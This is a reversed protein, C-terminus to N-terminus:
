DLEDEIYLIRNCTECTVIYDYMKILNIVQPPVFMNCGQCSNNKVTVIALGDRNELIRQYQAVINHDINPAIQKRQIELQSLRDDIEKIRVQVKNKQENFVKEENQLAQKEKDIDLKLKDMQDMIQLIKDEIVSGDAKTDAIQQLMTQYEKNTKLQFLQGQLKKANEEKAALSLEEDKKKKQLDLSSKELNVLGQKKAEFSFELTKLEEPKSEKERKLFYIEADVAQLNILSSLQAKLNVTEM